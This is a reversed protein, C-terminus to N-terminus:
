FGEVVDYAELSSMVVYLLWLFIFLVVTPYKTKAPGGLEGGGFAPRRRLLMVLIAVGACSCFITVSYALSFMYLLCM